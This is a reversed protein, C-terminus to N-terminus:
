RSKHPKQASPSSDKPGKGGAKAPRSRRQANHPCTLANHQWNGCVSGDPLSQNCVHRGSHPCDRQKKACGASSNFAACINSPTARATSKVSASASNQASVDTPTLQRPASASVGISTTTWLVALHTERAARLAEGYPFGEIHLSRAKARTQLDRDLVWKITEHM